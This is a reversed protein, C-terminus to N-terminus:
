FDVEEENVYNQKIKDFMEVRDKKNMYLHKNKQLEETAEEWLELADNYVIIINYQWGRMVDIVTNDKESIYLSNESFEFGWDELADYLTNNYPIVIDIDNAKEPNILFSGTILFNGKSAEVIRMMTNYDHMM